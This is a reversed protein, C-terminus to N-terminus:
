GYAERPSLKMEYNELMDQLRCIKYEAKAKGGNSTVGSTLCSLIKAGKPITGKDIEKLAGALAMLGTKEELKRSIRIGQKKLIDLIDNGDFQLEIFRCFESQNLTALDGRTARLVGAFDKYTGYTHPKFDYMVRTLLKATSDVAIPRVARGSKWARYMPCNAEQQIGMFRPVTGLKKGFKEFAWYIGIPGFAASISQVIWDFPGHELMYELIFLGRFRSAEYRWSTEPVHKLGYFETFKQAAEKVMGPEKVSILHAKKSKFTKSPLLSINEEPLFLFTELGAKVGYETLARGTNGGSEFVIKDHGGFICKAISVCGDISKLTKTQMLSSEDMLHIDVGKYTLLPFIRAGEKISTKLLLDKFRADEEDDTGFRFANRYRLVVSSDAAWKTDICDCFDKEFDSL